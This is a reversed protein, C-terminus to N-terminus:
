CLSRERMLHFLPPLDNTRTNMERGTESVVSPPLRPPLAPHFYKSMSIPVGASVKGAGASEKLSSVNGFGEGCDLASSTQQIWQQPLARGSIKPDNEEGESLALSISPILIHRSSTLGVRPGECDPSGFSSKPIELV